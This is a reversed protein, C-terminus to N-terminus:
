WCTLEGLDGRVMPCVVAGPPILSAHPVLWLALCGRALRVSSGRGECYSGIEAGVLLHTINGKTKWGSANSSRNQLLGTAVATETILATAATVSITNAFATNDLGIMPLPMQLGCVYGSEANIKSYWCRALAFSHPWPLVWHSLCPTGRLFKGVSVSCGRALWSRGCSWPLVWHSLSTLPVLWWM